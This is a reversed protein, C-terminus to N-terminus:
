NPYEPSPSPSVPDDNARKIMWRRRWLYAVVFSVLLPGEFPHAERVPDTILDAAQVSALASM